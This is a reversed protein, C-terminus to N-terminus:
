LIMQTGDSGVAIAKVLPDSEKTWNYLGISNKAYVTGDNDLIMQTGANTSIAQVRADSEQTWNYLGIGNKAYVTGGNDLIMQTGDSGVAIAKVLPDSEQTWNYLGISNKAYVTGDNDLIMQTGNSAVAIAQVRADSEKTWNYLGIGNKALVTGASDLIMQVGGNTSIAKVGPDSELTWNYLGISNKALVTGTSDLIMQTGDSGVAIAKVGPDSEQTWNYLGISSKAWVVGNTDLIMQTGGGTAVATVLPDSEKTWNYLGISNKAYVSRYNATANNNSTFTGGGYTHNQGDIENAIMSITYTGNTLVTTDLAYPYNAAGGGARVESRYGNPGTIVYDLWNIVGSQTPHSTLNVTGSLSQGSDFGWLTVNFGAPIAPAVTGMRYYGIVHGSPPTWSHHGVMGYSVYNSDVVDFSGDHNNAVVIATHLQDGDYTGEQIIDGKVATSATVQTGGADLYSKQYNGSPDVPWQSNGSVMYVICNVFQKCQAGGSQHADSCANSGSGGLYSLAKDALNANAYSGVAHATGAGMLPTALAAITTSVLAAVSLRRTSTLFKM